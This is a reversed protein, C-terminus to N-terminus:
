RQGIDLRDLCGASPLISERIREGKVVQGDEAAREPRFRAWFERFAEGKRTPSAGFWAPFGVSGRFAEGSLARREREREGFANEVAFFRGSDFASRRGFGSV